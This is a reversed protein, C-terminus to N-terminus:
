RAARARADFTRGGPRGLYAVGDIAGRVAASLSIPRRSGIGELYWKGARDYRVIEYGDATRGHVTRDNM